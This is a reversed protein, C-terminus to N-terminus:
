IILFEKVQLTIIDSINYIQLTLKWNLGSIYKICIFAKNKTAEQLASLNM